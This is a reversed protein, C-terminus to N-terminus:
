VAVKPIQPFTQNFLTKIEKMGKHLEKGVKIEIKKGDVGLTVLTCIHEDSDGLTFAWFVKKGTKKEFKSKLAWVAEVLGIPWNSNPQIKM